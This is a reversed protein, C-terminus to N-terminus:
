YRRPVRLRAIRSEAKLQSGKQKTSDGEPMKTDSGEHPSLLLAIVRRLREGSDPAPSYAIIVTLKPVSKRKAM